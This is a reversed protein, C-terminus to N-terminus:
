LQNSQLAYPLLNFVGEARWNASVERLPPNKVCHARPTSIGEQSPVLPLTKILVVQSFM